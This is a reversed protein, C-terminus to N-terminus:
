DKPVHRWHWPEFMVGLLNDKPYSIFFNFRAANAMLWDYEETEEFDQPTEDSPLGDVNQFDFALQSPTGHESYGPIAARKATKLVDFQNIKLISLFIIAQYANSRYSGAILLTRNIQKKMAKSMLRYAEYPAEPVFQSKTYYQKEKYTYPQPDIKVLNNPVSEIAFKPGKFGYKTPNISYVRDIMNIEESNLIRSLEKYTIITVYMGNQKARDVKALLNTIVEKDHDDVIFDGIKQDESM